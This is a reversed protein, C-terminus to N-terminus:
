DSDAERHMVRARQDRTSRIQNMRLTVFLRWLSYGVLLYIVMRVAERGPYDGIIFSTVVFTLYIAFTTAFTMLARGIASERWPSKRYYWAFLGPAPWVAWIIAHMVHTLTPPELNLELFYGFAGIVLIILAELSIRKPSFNRGMM